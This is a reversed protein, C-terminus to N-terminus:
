SLDDEEKRKKVEEPSIAEEEDYYQDDENDGREEEPTMFPKELHDSPGKKEDRDFNLPQPEDKDIKKKKMM